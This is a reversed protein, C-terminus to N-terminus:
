FFHGGLGSDMEVALQPLNLKQLRENYSKIIQTEVSHPHFELQEDTFIVRGGAQRTVPNNAIRRSQYDRALKELRNGLRNNLM